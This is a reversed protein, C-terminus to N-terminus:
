VAVHRAEEISSLCIPCQNEGSRCSDCYVLHGCPALYVTKPEAQCIVCTAMGQLAHELSTEAARAAELETGLQSARERAQKRQAVLASIAAASSAGRRSRKPASGADYDEDEHQQRKIREVEKRVMEALEPDTPMEAAAAAAAATEVEPM